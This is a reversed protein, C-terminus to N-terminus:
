KRTDKEDGTYHSGDSPSNWIDGVSTKKVDPVLNTDLLEEDEISHTQNLEQKASRRGARNYDQKWSKQSDVGLANNVYPKKTSNSM